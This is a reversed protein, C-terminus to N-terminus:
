ARDGVDAADVAQAPAVDVAVRLEVQDDRRDEAALGPRRGVVVLRVDHGELGIRAVGLVAVQRRCGTISCGTIWAISTRGRGAVCRGTRRESRRCRPRSAQDALADIVSPAENVSVVRFSTGPAGPSGGLPPPALDVEAPEVVAALEQGRDLGPVAGLDGDPRLVFAPTARLEAGPRHDVGGQVVAVGEPDGVDVAVAVVLDEGAVPALVM